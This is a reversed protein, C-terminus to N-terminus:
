TITFRQTLTTRSTNGYGVLMWEGRVADSPATWTITVRGDDDAFAFFSEDGLARGDPSSSWYSVREGRAFGPISFTFVTGPGGRPPAVSGATGPPPTPPPAAGSSIVFRIVREAQSDRGRAVMLWTGGIADSPAQWTWRGNGFEDAFIINARDGFARGDPASVWFDAQEGPRFGGATFTFVTGPPGTAPEAFPGGPQQLPPGTITFPVIIQDSFGGRLPRATMRWLGAQADDPATWTWRARGSRGTEFGYDTSGVVSGDPATFWYGILTKPRFEATFTFTTGRGGATPEVAPEQAAAPRPAFAFGLLLALVTCLRLAFSRYRDM